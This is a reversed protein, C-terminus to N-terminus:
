RSINSLRMIANLLDGMRESFDESTAVVYLVDGDMLVGNVHLVTRLMELCRSENLDIGVQELECITYGDDSLRIYDGENRVFLQIGDRHRDMFPMNIEIVEGHQRLVTRDVLWCYYESVFNTVEEYFNM